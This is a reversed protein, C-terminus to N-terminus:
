PAFHAHYDEISDIDIRGAASEMRLTLEPHAEFLFSCGRDHPPQERIEAFMERPIIVPHAPKGQSMGRLLYGKKWSKRANEYDQKRIFPLDVLTILVAETEASCARLGCQISSLLGTAYDQNFAERVPDQVFSRVAERHAGTVVIIDDVPGSLQDLVQEIFTRGHFALLAKPQFNMRRGEGAALLLATIM